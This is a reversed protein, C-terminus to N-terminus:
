YGVELNRNNWTQSREAADCVGDLNSDELLYGSQNRTNWASSRDAADITGSFDLDGEFMGFTVPGIIKQAGGQLSGYAQGNTFDFPNSILTLSMTGPTMVGIHNRHLLAVYYNGVPVGEIAVPSVGDIDVVDGDAQILVSKTAVIQSFDSADRLEMVIWDVIANNGTLALIAPDITEGGGRLVHTYGLAAYPEEVPLLGNQRLNDRMLGTAANYPGELFARVEVKLCAQTIDVNLTTTTGIVDIRNEETVSITTPVTDDEWIVTISTGNDSLITGGSIEWCYNSGPTPNVSYTEISGLCIGTPGFPTPSDYRLLTYLFNQGQDFVPNWYQNPFTIIGTPLGYFLHGLGVYPYFENYTGNNDLKANLPIAGYMVPFTPYFDLFPKGTDILVIFDSTGHIILMPIDQYDDIIDPSLTAGWLDIVGKVAFPQAYNNGFCDLCGMDSQLFGAFTEPPRESEELYAIHIATIAGASEGGTFIYDSDINFGLNDPDELLYRIAARGDQIASYSARIAAASNVAMDTANSLRYNVSACAYGYHALSDCWATVDADGKDGLIYAGGFFLVVLPREPLYEDAVAPEYFDLKLETNLGFIGTPYNAFTLDKTVKITPFVQQQYRDSTCPQAIALSTISVLLVFFSFCAFNKM